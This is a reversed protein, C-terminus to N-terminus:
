VFQAYRASQLQARLRRQIVCGRLQWEYAIRQRVALITREPHEAGAQYCCYNGGDTDAPNRPSKIGLHKFLYDGALGHQM